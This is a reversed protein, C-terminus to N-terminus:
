LKHKKMASRYYPNMRLKLPLKSYLLNINQTMLDLGFNKLSNNKFGYAEAIKLPLMNATLDMFLKSPIHLPHLRSNFKGTFHKILEKAHKNVKLNKNVFNNYYVMFDNYNKPIIEESIGFLFCFLKFEDYYQNLEKKTLIRIGDEYTWLATYFLTSAVWLLAEQHNAYYQEGNELNGKVKSHINHTMRAVKFAEELNGFLMTNVVNFTRKWRGFPDNKVKSHHHAGTSVWPHAEQMLLAYGSGLFVISEKGILWYISNPGFVGYKPNKCNLKIQNLKDELDQKTVINEM